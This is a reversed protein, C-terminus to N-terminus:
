FLNLEIHLSLSSSFSRMAIAAGTWAKGGLRKSSMMEGGKYETKMILKVQLKSM